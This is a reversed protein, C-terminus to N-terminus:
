GSASLVRQLLREVAAVSEPEEFTPTHGVRPVTVMECDEIEETMRKAVDASLLDSTEGRLITVPRGDLSRFYHWGDFESSSAPAAFTEAIKMDYDFIWGSEDDGRMIRRVFDEWQERSFDPYIGANRESVRDVAAAFTDFTVPKGVYTAIRELGHPDIEPGIDNLLAGAIRESDNAAMAMTVLGGLSTGVFVADAIGLQDLLKLLDAVYINPRYNEAKPDHQSGGRGRFDVSLVRWEGAFRDAVPEFDAANRTLGPLCLIPPRDLPGDYDRYHLKLGDASTWFRDSWKLHASM